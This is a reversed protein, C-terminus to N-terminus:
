KAIASTILSCYPRVTNGIPSALYNVNNLLLSLASNISPKKTLTKLFCNVVM